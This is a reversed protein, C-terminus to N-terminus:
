RSMTSPALMNGLPSLVLVTDLVIKRRWKTCGPWKQTKAITSASPWGETGARSTLLSSPHLTSPHRSSRLILRGRLTTLWFRALIGVHRSTILSIASAVSPVTHLGNRGLTLGAKLPPTCLRWNMQSVPFLSMTWLSVKSLDHLGRREVKNEEYAAFANQVDTLLQAASKPNRSKENSILRLYFIKIENGFNEHQWFTMWLNWSERWNTSRAPWKSKKEWKKRRKEGNRFFFWWFVGNIIDPLCVGFTREVVDATTKLRALVTIEAERRGRYHDRNNTAKRREIVEKEIKRQNKIIILWIRVGSSTGVTLAELKSNSADDYTKMSVLQAQLTTM